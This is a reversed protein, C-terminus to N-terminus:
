TLSGEGAPSRLWEEANNTNNNHNSNDNRAHPSFIQCMQMSQSIDMTSYPNRSKRECQTKLDLCELRRLAENFIRVASRAELWTTTPNAFRSRGAIQVERGTM